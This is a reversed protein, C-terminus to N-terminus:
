QVVTIKLMVTLWEDEFGSHGTPSYLLGTFYVDKCKLAAWFQVTFKPSYKLLM